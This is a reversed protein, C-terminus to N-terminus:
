CFLRFLFSLERKITWCGASVVLLLLFAGSSLSRFSKETGRRKWYASHRHFWADLIAGLLGWRHVDWGQTNGEQMTGHNTKTVLLFHCFHYCPVELTLNYYQTSERVCARERTHSAKPFTMDQASGHLPRCPLSSFSGALLWILSSLLPNELGLHTKLSLLGPWCSSGM